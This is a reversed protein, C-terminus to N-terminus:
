YQHNGAHLCLVFVNCFKTMIQRIDFLNYFDLFLSSTLFHMAICNKQLMASCVLKARGGMSYVTSHVYCFFSKMSLTWQVKLEKTITAKRAFDFWLTRNLTFVFNQHRREFPIEERLLFLAFQSLDLPSCLEFSLLKFNEGNSLFLVYINEPMWTSLTCDFCEKRKNIWFRLLQM